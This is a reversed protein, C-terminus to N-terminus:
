AAEALAKSALRGSEIGIATYKTIRFPRGDAGTGTLMETSIEICGAAALDQVCRRIASLLRSYNPAQDVPASRSIDADIDGKYYAFREGLKLNQLRHITWCTAM